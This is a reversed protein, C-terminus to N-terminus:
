KGSAWKNLNKRKVGFFNVPVGYSRLIKRASWHAIPFFIPFLYVLALPAVFIWLLEVITSTRVDLCSFYLAFYNVVLYIFTVVILIQFGYSILEDWPYIFIYTMSLVFFVLVFIKAVRMPGNILNALQICRDKMEQDSTPTRQLLSMSTQTLLFTSFECGFRKLGTRAAFYTVFGFLGFFVGCGFGILVFTMVLPDILSLKGFYLLTSICVSILLCIGIALWNARGSMKTKSLLTALRLMSIFVLPTAPLTLFSVAISLFKSTLTLLAGNGFYNALLSFVTIALSTLLMLCSLALRNTWVALELMQYSHLESEQNPLPKSVDNDLVKSEHAKTTKTQAIVMSHKKALIKEKDAISLDQFYSCPTRCRPCEASWDGVVPEKPFIGVTGECNDCRVIKM